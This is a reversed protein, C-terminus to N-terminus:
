YGLCCDERDEEEEEDDDSDDGGCGHLEVMDESGFKM